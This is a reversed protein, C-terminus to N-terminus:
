DPKLFILVKEPFCLTDLELRIQRHYSFNQFGLCFIINYLIHNARMICKSSHHALAIFFIYLFLFEIVSTKKETTGWLNNFSKNTLGLLKLHKADMQVSLFVWDTRNKYSFLVRDVFM